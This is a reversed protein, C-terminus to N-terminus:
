QPPIPKTVQFGPEWLIRNFEYIAEAELGVDTIARATDDEQQRAANWQQVDPHSLLRRLWSSQMLQRVMAEAAKKQDDDPVEGLIATMAADRAAQDEMYAADLLRPERALARWSKPWETALVVWKALQWWRRAQLNQEESGDSTTRYRFLIRGVGDYMAFANFIRKIQRPNGPLSAVLGLLANTVEQQYSRDSGAAAVFKVAALAEVYSPDVGRKVFESKVADMGTERQQITKSSKAVDGLKRQRISQSVLAM